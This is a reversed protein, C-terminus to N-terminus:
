TLDMEVLRSDYMIKKFQTQTTFLRIKLLIILPRNVGHLLYKTLIRDIVITFFIRFILKRFIYTLFSSM